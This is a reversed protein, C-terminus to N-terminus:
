HYDFVPYPPSRREGGEWGRVVIIMKVLQSKLIKASQCFASKSLRDRTALSPNIFTSIGAKQHQVIRLRGPAQRGDNSM